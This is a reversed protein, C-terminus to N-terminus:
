DLHRAGARLHASNLHVAAYPLHGNFVRLSRRSPTGHEVVKSADSAGVDLFSLLSAGYREGRARVGEKHLEGADHAGAERAAPKQGHGHARQEGYVCEPRKQRCSPTLQTASAKRYGHEVRCGNPDGEQFAIGFGCTM